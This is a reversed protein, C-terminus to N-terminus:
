VTASQAARFSQSLWPRASPEGETGAADGAEGGAEGGAAEGGAAAEALAAGFEGAGSAIAPAGSSSAIRAGRGAHNTDLVAQLASNKAAEAAIAQRLRELELELELARSRKRLRAAEAQARGLAQRLDDPAAAAAAGKPAPARDAGKQLAGWGQEAEGRAM